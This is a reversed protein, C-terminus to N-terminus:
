SVRLREGRFFNFGSGLLSLETLAWRNNVKVRCSLAGYYDPCNM